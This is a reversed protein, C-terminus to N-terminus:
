VIVRVPKTPYSQAQAASAALIALIMGILVPLKKM